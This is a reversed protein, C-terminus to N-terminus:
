SQRKRDAHQIVDLEWRAFHRRTMRSWAEFAAWDIPAAFNGLVGVLPAFESPLPPQRLPAPM